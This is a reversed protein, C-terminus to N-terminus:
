EDIDEEDSSGSFDIANESDEAKPTEKLLKLASKPVQRSQKQAKWCFSSLLPDSSMLLRNFVDMNRAEQAEETLQGIPLLAYNIVETGHILLKHLTLPMYYWPYLTVFNSATELAYQGFKEEDIDQDVVILVTHMRKILDIDLHTIEASLEPSQFFKRSTNGDSTSVFGPKPDDVLLGLKEKFEKQIRKKNNNVIDKDEASKVQWKQIPLKYAVQLLCEFFRIWLHLTSLGFRLNNTSVPRKLVKVINNFQKSNSGCIYCTRTSTTETLANCVRGDIMLLMLQHSVEVVDGLIQVVTKTLERIEEAVRNSEKPAVSSNEKTFEIRLPRCFRASGPCPNKWIVRNECTMKIPVISTVFVSSDSAESSHDTSGNFGWKTFLCVKKMLSPSLTDINKGELHVIRMATHDLLAQLSIQSFTEGVVISDAPPYCEKKASQIANYSPFRDPASNRVVQYQFRSLRGEVLVALAEAKSMKTDVPPDVEGKRRHSRMHRQLTVKLIFAKPCFTCEFPREGTHIRLHTKLKFNQSFAKPCYTCKFPREGTHTRLHRSLCSKKPFIKACYPCQKDNGTPEYNDGYDNDSQLEDGDDYRDGEVVTETAEVKVQDDYAPELESIYFVEEQIPESKVLIVEQKVDDDSVNCVEEQLLDEDMAFRTQSM